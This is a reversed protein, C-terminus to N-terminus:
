RNGKFINNWISQLKLILGNFCSATIDIYFLCLRVGKGVNPCSVRCTTRTLPSLKRIYNIDWKYILQKDFIMWICDSIKMLENSERGLELKDGGNDKIWAENKRSLRITQSWM